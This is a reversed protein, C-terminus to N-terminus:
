QLKLVHHIHSLAPVPLCVCVLTDGQTHLYVDECECNVGAGVLVYLCMHYASM